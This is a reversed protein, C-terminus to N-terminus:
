GLRDVENVRRQLMCILNSTWYPPFYSRMIDLARAVTNSVVAMIVEDQWVHFLHLNEVRSKLRQATLPRKMTRLESSLSNVPVKERLSM